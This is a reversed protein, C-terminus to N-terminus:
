TAQGRLHKRLHDCSQSLTAWEERTLAEACRAIAGLFPMVSEEVLSRGSLTLRIELTRRDQAGRERHLWGRRVMGDLTASMTARSVQAHRALGAPTCPSPEEAYLCILTILKVESLDFRTLVERMHSRLLKSIAILSLVASCGDPDGLGSQRFIRLLMQRPQSNEDSHIDDREESCISKPKLVTATMPRLIAM